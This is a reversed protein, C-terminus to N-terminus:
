IGKVEQLTNEGNLTVVISNESQLGQMSNKPIPPSTNIRGCTNLSSFYNHRATHVTLAVSDPKKGLYIAGM